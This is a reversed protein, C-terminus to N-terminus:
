LIVEGTFLRRFTRYIAASVAHWGDGRAEVCADGIVVGAPSGIRLSAGEGTSLAEAVSATLRAAVSLCLLGTGPVARHPQGNSIFRASLDYDRADITRGDEAVYTEPSGLIGILPTLPRQGAVELSPTLGMAVSAARRIVELEDLLSGRNALEEPRETGSLGLQAAKVFVCPNGADILSASFTAAPTPLRDVPSGTPLLRGGGSGGPDLFDLRVPAGSGSVGPITFDGVEVALGDRVEFRARILKHTNTSHILVATDGDSRRLLGAHLAFPAVAATMNGCTGSYDVLARDVQVQAFTFDVDAQGVSPPGVVCVKSLSSSGGGMGNLQRRYPDPSGMAALLLPTWDGEDAPLVDRRFMLGKSTGGRM